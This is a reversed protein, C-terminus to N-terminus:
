EKEMAIMPSSPAQIGTTSPLAFLFYGGAVWTVSTTKSPDDAWLADADPEMRGDCTFGGPCGGEQGWENLGYQFLHKPMRYPGYADIVPIGVKGRLQEMWYGNITHGRNVPGPKGFFDAYFRPV